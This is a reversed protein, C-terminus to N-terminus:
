GPNNGPTVQRWKAECASYVGFTVLGLAVAVLLWPGAPTTAFERLTGDVGEAKDPDFSIGAYALFVGATGYVLARATRGTMGLKEVVERAHGTVTLKEMFKKKALARWAMGIGVGVLVLGALLVLWRGGPVDHMARGTLDKSKEDSSEKERAGITFLLTTVFFGIYFVGRGLSLLRKSPKHGGPGAAGFAAEALRWLALGALGVVILWLLVIGGPKEALTQVAGSSDAEKEGSGFAIQLAIIGVLVYLLGRAALGTRALGTM